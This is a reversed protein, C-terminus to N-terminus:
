VLRLEKKVWNWYDNMEDETFTKRRLDVPIYGAAKRAALTANAYHSNCYGKARIPKDCGERNCM